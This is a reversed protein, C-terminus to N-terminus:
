ELLGICSSRVQIVGHELRKPLVPWPTRSEVRRLM